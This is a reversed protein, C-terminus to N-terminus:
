DTSPIGWGYWRKTLKPIASPSADSGEREDTGRRLSAEVVAALRERRCRTNRLHLQAVVFATNELLAARLVVIAVHAHRMRAANAVDLRFLVQDAAARENEYVRRKVGTAALFSRTIWIRAADRTLEVDRPALLVDGSALRM